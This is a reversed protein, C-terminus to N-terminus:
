EDNGIYGVESSIVHIGTPLGSNALLSDIENKTYYNSLDVVINTNGIEENDIIGGVIGDSVYADIMFTSVQVDGKSITFLMKLTGITKTMASSIIVDFSNGTINEVTGNIINKEDARGYKASVSCNSLNVVKGDEFVNIKIKNGHDGQVLKIHNLSQFKEQKLDVQINYDKM